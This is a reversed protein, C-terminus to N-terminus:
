EGIQDKVAKELATHDIGFYKVLQPLTGTTGFTTLGMRRFHKPAVCNDAFTEAVAGGLGGYISGDEVTIINKCERCAKLAADADFPKLTSFDLVRIAIGQDKLFDAAKMAEGVCYGTALIAADTGYDRATLAKGLEFKQNEDYIIPTAGRGLRLYVPTKIDAIQRTLARAAVSDAPCILTMNPMTRIIGLDETGQHTVGDTDGSLGGLGAVIKVNQNTYACFTRIQEVARMSLFPSYGVCFVTYGESAMGAAATIMCQEAIGFEFYRDPFKNVFDGLAFSRYTDASTVLIDKREEAIQIIAHGFGTRTSEMKESM